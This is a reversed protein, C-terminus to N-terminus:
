KKTAAILNRKAAERYLQKFLEKYYDVLDNQSSNKSNRNM